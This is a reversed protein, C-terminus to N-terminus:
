LRGEAPLFCRDPLYTDSRHKKARSGAHNGPESVCKQSLGAKTLVPRAPSKHNDRLESLARSRDQKTFPRRWFGQASLKFGDESMEAKTKCRRDGVPGIRHDEFGSVSKFFLACESCLCNNRGVRLQPTPPREDHAPIM